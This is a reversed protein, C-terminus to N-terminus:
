NVKAAVKDGAQIYGKRFSALIKGTAQDDKVSRIQIRGLYQSGRFVELSHGTRLGDDKGVSVVVSQDGGVHLVEGRLDSPPVDEPDRVGAALLAASQTESKAQFFTADQQLQAVQTQLDQEVSKLGNYQDTLAIVRRRQDNRDTIIKDLEAKLTENQRFLIEVRDNTEGLQQTQATLTGSKDNLEKNAQALQDRAIELQTQLSALALRRSAIEQARQTQLEETRKKLEDITTQLQKAQTQFAGLKEKHKVHSANVAIASVFFILSLCLVMVTFIKGLHTM